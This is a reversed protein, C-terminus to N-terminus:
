AKAAQQASPTRVLPQDADDKRNCNNQGIQQQCPSSSCAERADAPKMRQRAEGNEKHNGRWPVDQNSQCIWRLTMGTAEGERVAM